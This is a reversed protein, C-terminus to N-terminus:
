GRGFLADLWALHAELPGFLRHRREGRLDLHRPWRPPCQQDVSHQRGDRVVADLVAGPAPLRPRPLTPWLRAVARHWRAADGFERPISRLPVLTNGVQLINENFPPIGRQVRRSTSAVRRLLPTRPRLAKTPTSAVPAADGVVSLSLRRGSAMEAGINSAPTCGDQCYRNSSGPM